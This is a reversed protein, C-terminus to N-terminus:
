YNKSEHCFHICQLDFNRCAHCEGRARPISRHQEYRHAKPDFGSVCSSCLFISKKLDALDVVYSGVPKGKHRGIAEVAQLKEQKSYKRPLYLMVM